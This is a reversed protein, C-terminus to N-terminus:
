IQSISDTASTLSDWGDPIGEGEQSAPTKVGKLDRLMVAITAESQVKKKGVTNPVVTHRRGSDETHEKQTHKHLLTPKRSVVCTRPVSIARANAAHQERRTPTGAM